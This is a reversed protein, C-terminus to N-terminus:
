MRKSGVTIRICDPLGYGAVLRAVIGKSKLHADAARATEESGMRCLIFNGESPNSPFGLAAIDEALRKRQATNVARCHDVYTTDRVAAEAGALALTSLNFPGRVRNLVDIM